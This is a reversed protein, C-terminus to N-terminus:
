SERETVNFKALIRGAHNRCDDCYGGNEERESEFRYESATTTKANHWLSICYEDKKCLWLALADLQQQDVQTAERVEGDVIVKM